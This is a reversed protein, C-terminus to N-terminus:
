SFPGNASANAVSTKLGAHPGSTLTVVIHSYEIRVLVKQQGTGCHIGAPAAPINSTGSDLSGSVQGGNDTFPGAPASFSGTSSNKNEAKPFNGGGNFCGYFAKVSAAVTFDCPSGVSGCGAGSLTWAVHLTGNANVSSSTSTYGSAFVGSASAFVFVLALVAPLCTLRSRRM